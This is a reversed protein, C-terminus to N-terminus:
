MLFPETCYSTWSNNLKICQNPNNKDREYIYVDYILLSSFSSSQM